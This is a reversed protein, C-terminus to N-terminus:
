QAGGKLALYELKCLKELLLTLNVAEELTNGWCVVGHKSLIVLSNNICLNSAFDWLKPSGPPFFPLKVIKDLLLQAEPHFFDRFSFGLKDLILVYPPHTHVIAMAQPNKQYIKAHLGWESSPKGSIFGEEWSYFALDRKCLTEKIRGSPTIFFGREVRLSLNGESGSILNKQALYKTWFILEERNDRM